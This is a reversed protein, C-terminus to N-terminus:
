TPLTSDFPIVVIRYWMPAINGSGDVFTSAYYTCTSANINKWAYLAYTHTGAAPTLGVACYMVSAVQSAATYEVLGITGKDVQGGFNDWLEVALGQNAVGNTIEATPCFFEVLISTAGDLTVSNGQILLNTQASHGLATVVLNTKRFIYGDLNSAPPVGTGPTPTFTAGALGRFWSVDASGGAAVQNSTAYIGVTQGGDSIVKLAPLFPTAAATGDFSAFVAKPRIQGNGPITFTAPTAATGTVRVQQDDTAM